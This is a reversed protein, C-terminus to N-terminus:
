SDSNSNEDKNEMKDESKLRSLVGALFWGIPGTTAMSFAFGLLSSMAIFSFVSFAIKYTKGSKLVEEFSNRFLIYFLYIFTFFGLVGSAPLLSFFYSETGYVEGGFRHAALTPSGLGHGFPYRIIYDTLYYRWMNLRTQFTQEGTPAKLGRIMHFYYVRPGEMGGKIRPPPSIFVEILAYFAFFLFIGRIFAKRIEKATLSFAILVAFLLSFISSRVGTFVIASLITILFPISSPLREFILNGAMILGGIAFFRSSEDPSMFTSFARPHGWLKVTVYEKQVNRIWYEEFPMLGHFFQFIGYSATIIATISIIKLVRRIFEEDRFLVGPIFWLAPFIMFIAGALGVLINGQLPNFIQVFFLFLLFLYVRFAKNRSYEEYIEKKMKLLLFLLLFSLYVPETLHIPDYKTFPAILYFLRRILGKFPLYLFVLLISAKIDFLAILCFISVLQFIVLIKLPNGESLIVRVSLLALLIIFPLFLIEGKKM